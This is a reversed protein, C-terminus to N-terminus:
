MSIGIDGRTLVYQLYKMVQQIRPARLELFLIQLYSHAIDECKAMQM